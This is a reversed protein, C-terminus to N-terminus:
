VKLSENIDAAHLARRGIKLTKIPTIFKPEVPIGNENRSVDYEWRSSFFTPRRRWLTFNGKRAYIEM